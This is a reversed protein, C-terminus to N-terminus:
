YYISRTQAGGKADRRAQLFDYLTVTPIELDVKFGNFDSDPLVDHFDSDRLEEPAAYLGDDDYDDEFEYRRRRWLWYVLTGILLPGVMGCVILPVYWLQDSVPASPPGSPCGAGLLSGATKYATRLAGISVLPGCVLANGSIDLLTLASLAAWANPVSRTCLPPPPLSRALIPAAGSPLRCVGVFLRPLVSGRANEGGVKGRARRCFCM